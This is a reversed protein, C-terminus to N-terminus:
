KYLIFVMVDLKKYNFIKSIFNGTFCMFFGKKVKYLIDISLMSFIVEYCFFWKGNCTM